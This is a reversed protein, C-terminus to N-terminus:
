RVEVSPTAPLSRPSPTRRRWNDENPNNPRQFNGPYGWRIPDKIGPIGYSRGPAEYSGYSGGTTTAGIPEPKTAFRDPHLVELALQMLFDNQHSSPSTPPTAPRRVGFVMKRYPPKRLNQLTRRVPNRPKVSANPTKCESISANAPDFLAGVTGM